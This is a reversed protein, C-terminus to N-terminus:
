NNNLQQSYISGLAVAEFMRIYYPNYNYIEKKFEHILVPYKSAVIEAMKNKSIRNEPSFLNEMEKISYEYIKINNKSAFDRIQNLLLDLKRSSRSSHLKKVSFVDPNYKEVFDSVALMIKDLKKKCMKERFCKVRWDRLDDGQFFSLGLYRSSPNIGIIKIQKKYM